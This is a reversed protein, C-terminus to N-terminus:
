WEEGEWVLVCPADKAEGMRLGYCAGSDSSLGFEGFNDTSTTLLTGEVDPEVLALALGPV